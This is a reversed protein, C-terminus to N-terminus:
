ELKTNKMTRRNTTTDPIFYIAGLPSPNVTALKCLHKFTKWCKNLNYSAIKMCRLARIPHNWWTKKYVLSNIDQIQKNVHEKRGNYLMLLNSTCSELLWLLCILLKPKRSRTGKVGRQLHRLYVLKSVVLKWPSGLLYLAFGTKNKPGENPSKRFNEVNVVFIWRFFCRLRLSRQRAWVCTWWKQHAARHRFAKSFSRLLKPDFVSLTCITLYPINAKM